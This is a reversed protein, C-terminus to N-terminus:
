HASLLLKSILAAASHQIFVFGFRLKQLDQLNDLGSKERVEVSSVESKKSVHRARLNEGDDTNQRIM